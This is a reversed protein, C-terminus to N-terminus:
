SGISITMKVIVIIVPIIAVISLVKIAYCHKDKRLYQFPAM